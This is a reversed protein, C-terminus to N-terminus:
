ANRRRSIRQSPTRVIPRAIVRNPTAEHTKIRSETELIRAGWERERQEYTRIARRRLSRLREASYATHIMAGEAGAAGHGLVTDPVRAQRLAPAEQGDAAEVLRRLAQLDASRRQGHHM